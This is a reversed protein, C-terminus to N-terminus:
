PNLEGLPPLDVWEWFENKGKDDPRNNPGRITFVPTYNIQDSPMEFDLIRKYNASTLEGHSIWEEAMARPLFLPMRNKNDGDNHINAMVTNAARTILSFTYRKLMEGTQIDPLESVSYLGPLFFLNQDKLRIFYPVKKKWGKVASTRLHWKRPYPM